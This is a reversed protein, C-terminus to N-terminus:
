QQNEPVLGFIRDHSEDFICWDFSPPADKKSKMALRHVEKLTNTHGLKGCVLVPLGFKNYRAIQTSANCVGRGKKCEIICIPRHNLPWFVVIDFLCKKRRSDNPIYGRVQLKADLNMQRIDGYLGAQIEAESQNKNYIPVLLQMPVAKILQKKSEVSVRGQSFM